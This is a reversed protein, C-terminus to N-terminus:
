DWTKHGRFRAFLIGIIAGFALQIAVILWWGIPLLENLVLGPFGLVYVISFAPGCPGFLFSSAILLLFGVLAGFLAWQRM